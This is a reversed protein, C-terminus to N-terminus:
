WTEVAEAKHPGKRTAGPQTSHSLLPRQPGAVSLCVPDRSKRERGDSPRKALM